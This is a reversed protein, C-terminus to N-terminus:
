GRQAVLTAILAALEHELALLMPRLLRTQPRPLALTAACIRGIEGDLGALDIRRGTAVLAHATALTAAMAEIAAAIVTAPEAQEVRPASMPAM